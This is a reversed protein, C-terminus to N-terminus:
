ASGTKDTRWGSLHLKINKVLESFYAVTREAHATNEPECGNQSTRASQDHVPAIQRSIYAKMKPIADAEKARAYQHNEKAVKGQDLTM